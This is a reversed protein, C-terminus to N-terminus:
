YQSYRQILDKVRGYYPKGSYIGRIVRAYGELLLQSVMKPANLLGVMASIIGIDKIFDIQHQFVQPTDHDFGLIFGGQVEMGHDQIRHVSEVLDRQTNQIKGCEKLSEPETTEM